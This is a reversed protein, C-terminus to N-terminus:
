AKTPLTLHTYSVPTIPKFTIPTKYGTEIGNLIINAEAPTSLVRLTSIQMTKEWRRAYGKKILLEGLDEGNIIVRAITRGFKDLPHETDRIIIVEKGEILNKVFEKAEDHLPQGEEPTDANALRIHEDQTTIYTDGDIVKAITVREGGIDTPIDIHITNRRRAKVMTKATATFTGGTETDRYELRIEHKGEPIDYFTEPTILNTNVGDIYITAGPPTSTITLDGTKEMEGKAKEEPTPPLVILIEKREKAGIDIKQEKELWVDERRVYKRVKITHTGPTIGKITEPTLLETNIGDIWIEASSPSSEIRLESKIEEAQKEEEPKSKKELIIRIERKEGAGLTVEATGYEYLGLERNFKRLRIKYTGPDMYYFTEPTLKGTNRGDIIIEADEPASTIRLQAKEAKKKEEIERQRRKEEEAKEQIELYDAYDYFAEASQVAAYMYRLIAGGTVPSLTALTKVATYAMAIFDMHRDMYRRLTNYDKTQTLMYAGMGSAQTAEEMMFAGMAAPFTVTSVLLEAIVGISWFFRFIPNEPPKMTALNVYVEWLNMSSEDLTTLLREMDAKKWRPIYHEKKEIEKKEEEKKELWTLYYSLREEPTMQLWTGLDLDPPIWNTPVEEIEM